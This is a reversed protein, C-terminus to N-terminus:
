PRHGASQSCRAALGPGQVADAGAGVRDAGDRKQNYLDMSKTIFNCADFRGMFREVKIQKHELAKYDEFFRKITKLRYEPLESVDRYQRYEPDDAHVALIKADEENQDVMLM